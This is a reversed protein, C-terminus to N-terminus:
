RDDIPSSVSDLAIGFGAPPFYGTGVVVGATNTNILRAPAAAYARDNRWGRKRAIAAALDTAESPGAAVVILNTIGDKTPCALNNPLSVIYINM